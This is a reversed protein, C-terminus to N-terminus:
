WEVESPDLGLVDALIDVMSRHGSWDVEVDPIRCHAWVLELERDLEAALMALSSDIALRDVFDAADVADRPERDIM